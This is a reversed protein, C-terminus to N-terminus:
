SAVIPQIQIITLSQFPNTVIILPTNWSNTPSESIVYRMITSKPAFHPRHTSLEMFLQSLVLHIYGHMFSSWKDLRLWNEETFYEWFILCMHCGDTGDCNVMYCALNHLVMMRLRFIIGVGYDAQNRMFLNGCGFPHFECSCGNGCFFKQHSCKSHNIGESTTIINDGWHQHTQCWKFM